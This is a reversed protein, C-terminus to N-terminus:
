LNKIVRCPIGSAIVNSPIDSSVISGAGIISNEGITVGKLVTVNVGLWVNNYIIIPRPANVRSDELHWDSDTILTNAGCRVNDGLVIKDFCGIVTGSFGCNKGIKIESNNGISSIICPRNIGILNSVSRSLFTCNDGIKISCNSGRKFYTRGNFNCKKSIHIGQLFCIFKMVSTFYFFLFKEYYSDIFNYAKNLIM